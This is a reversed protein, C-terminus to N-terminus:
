YLFQTLMDPRLYLDINGWGDTRGRTSVRPTCRSSRGSSPPEATTRLRPSLRGILVASHRLYHLNWKKIMTNITTHKTHKQKRINMYIYIYIYFYVTIGRSVLSATLSYKPQRLNKKAKKRVRSVFISEALSHKLPHTRQCLAAFMFHRAM